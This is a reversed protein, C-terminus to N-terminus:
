ENPTLFDDLGNQVLTYTTDIDAAVDGELVNLGALLNKAESFGTEVGARIIDIFASQAETESLSSNLERFAGYFSTAQAVIRDATAEPSTDIDLAIATDIANAQGTEAEIAENINELATKYLVALPQNGSSLSVEASAEIIGKRLENRTHALESVTKGFAEGSEKTKALAQINQGFPQTIDM